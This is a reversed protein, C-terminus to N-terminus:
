NAIITADGFIRASAPNNASSLAGDVDADSGAGVDWHAFSGSGTISINNAVGMPVQQTGPAAANILLVGGVTTQLTLTRWTTAQVPASTSSGATNTATVQYEYYRDALGSDRYTSSYSPLGSAINVFAAAALDGATAGSRREIMYIADPSTAGWQVFAYVVSAAKDYGTAVTVSPLPPALKEAGAPVVYAPITTTYGDLVYVIEAAGWQRASGASLGAEVRYIGPTWAGSYAYASSSIVTIGPAVTGGAPFVPTVLFLPTSSAPASFSSWDCSAAITGSGATPPVLDITASATVGDAITVNASGSGIPVSTAGDLVSAVVTATWNGPPIGAITPFVGDPDIGGDITPPTAAPNALTLRYSLTSLSLVGPLTTLSPGAISASVGTGLGPLTTRLSLSGRGNGADSSAPSDCSSALATAVALMIAVAATFVPALPRAAAQRKPDLIM